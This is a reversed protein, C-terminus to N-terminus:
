HLADLAQKSKAIKAIVRQIPATWVFLKPNQNCNSIYDYITKVLIPVNHFSGRRLRKETLERFWREVLMVVAWPLPNRLRVLNLWSSSTPTFHLHFRAHRSLWRKVSPHKHTAYNDMVLHLDLEHPMEHDIKKLFRIFEQHRHRPMCQGIVKEESIKPIRGPRPADKELGKLRLALFRERWLQVTPRSIKLKRAIEKNQTGGSALLVVRAREVLRAPVSRGRALRELEVREADSLMILEAKRTVFHYEFDFMM